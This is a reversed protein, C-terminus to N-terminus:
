HRNLWPGYKAELAELHELSDEHMLGTAVRDRVQEIGRRFAERSRDPLGLDHFITAAFEWRSESGPAGRNPSVGPFSELELLSEGLALPTDVCSFFREGLDRVLGVIEHGVEDIPRGSPNAWGLPRREEKQKESGWMGILALMGVGLVPAVEVGTSQSGQGGNPQLGLMTRVEAQRPSTVQLDVILGDLGTGKPPGHFIVCVTKEYGRFLPAVFEVADNADFRTHRQVYNFPALGESLLSALYRRAEVRRM